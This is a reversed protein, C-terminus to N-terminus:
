AAATISCQSHQLAIRKGRERREGREERRDGGEKREGRQETRVGREERREGREYIIEGREERREGREERGGRERRREEERRCGLSAKLRLYLSCLKQRCLVLLIRRVVCSLVAAYRSGSYM